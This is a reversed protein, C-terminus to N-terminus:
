VPLLGMRIARAVAEARTRADFKGLLATVHFKVTHESVGLREAMQRNTLGQALLQLVELERRTPAEIMTSAAARADAEQPLLAALDPRAITVLGRAAALIAARLSEADIGSTLLAAAGLHLAAAQDATDLALVVIPLGPQALALDRIPELDAPDGPGADVVVVDPQLQGALSAAESLPGSGVVTTASMPRILAELGSRALPSLSAVLVRVGDM